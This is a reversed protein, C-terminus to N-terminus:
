GFIMLKLVTVVMTNSWKSQWYSEKTSRIWSNGHAVDKTPLKKSKKTSFYISPTKSQRKTNNEIRLIGLCGTSKLIETVTQMGGVRPTSPSISSRSIEEWIRKMSHTLTLVINELLEVDLLNNANISSITKIIKNVFTKEKDRDKVIMWKKTQFHEKIIPITIM